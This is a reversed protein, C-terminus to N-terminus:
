DLLKFTGEALEGGLEVSNVETIIKGIMPNALEFEVRFPLLMGSVDRFDGFSLKRGVRGMGELHGLSYERLVRGTDLDVCISVAPASTDGSRLLLMNKGNWALRQIAHIGPYWQNWDGYRAHINDLKMMEGRAGVVESLPTVVSKTWGSVGDFSVSEANDDIVTNYRYKDPWAILANHEGELKLSPISLVGFTRLPGLTELLDLRYTDAVLGAVDEVAPLDASPEFLFEQHDGIHFGTVDGAESRDFAIVTSPQPRLKWRDEGIYGLPVAATGMIEFALDDGDLVIARYLDGEGERYYGLYQELPPAAQNPDFPTGMFLAGLAEEVRLGTINNRSQTFYMVMANQEPFVWAHTGDSGTHGFAVVERDAQKGAEVDEESLEEEATWLQMLFGYDTRLKPLGTSSPFPLPTPTLAKRVSRSTLLRERGARGRRKWLQMFRAYDELTSYLGQSGLFFPFLPEEEPSWFRTWEGKSGVYKSCGRERLPHGDAMLCTSDQMGLPELLRTRVFDAATEGSVVEILATLTDTGQDSYSIQSGPEFSVQEPDALDAVSRIGEYEKLEAAMIQSFPLGSTHSLLHEVTIERLGDVDFSPLFKSVRDDLELKNEDVLMLISAGIFPKTMSRVCFVSGVEMPVKEEVHRMGYAEHLISKGNKIVLLEAGVIEQDDVLSQVLQDLDALAEPSVGEALATSDPFAETPAQ